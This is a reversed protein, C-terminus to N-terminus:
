QWEQGPRIQDPCCRSRRTRGHPESHQRPAQILFRQRDFNGQVSDGQRNGDRPGDCALAQDAQKSRPGQQEHQRRYRRRHGCGRGCRCGCRCSGRNETGRGARGQRTHHQAQNSRHYDGGLQVPRLHLSRGRRRAVQRAIDTAAKSGKAMIQAAFDAADGVKNAAVSDAINTEVVASAMAGAAAFSKIKGVMSTALLTRSSDDPYGGTALLALTAERGADPTHLGLATIVAIGIKIKTAADRGTALKNVIEAVRALDDGTGVALTGAIAPRNTVGDLIVTLVGDVDSAESVRLVGQGLLAKTAISVPKGGATVELLEDMLMAENSHTVSINAIVEGLAKGLKKQNRMERGLVQVDDDQRDTPGLTQVYGGMIAGAAPGAKAALKIAINTAAVKREQNDPIEAALLSKAIGALGTVSFSAASGLSKGANALITELEAQTGGFAAAVQAGISEAVAANAASKAAAGLVNGKGIASLVFKSNGSTSNINFVTAVLEAAKTADAALNDEAIATAIIQGAIKDKDKRVAGQYAELAGEVVENATLSAFVPDNLVLTIALLLDNASAKTVTTPAKLSPIFVPTLRNHIANRGDPSASTQCVGAVLALSAAVPAIRSTCFPRISKPKHSTTMSQTNALLPHM